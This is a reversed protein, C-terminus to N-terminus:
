NTFYEKNKKLNRLAYFAVALKIVFAIVFGLIIFNKPPIERIEGYKLISAAKMVAEYNNMAIYFGAALGVFYLIYYYKTADYSWKKAMWYGYFLSLSFIIMITNMAYDFYADSKGLLEVSVSFWKESMLRYVAVFTHYGFVLFHFLIILPKARNMM